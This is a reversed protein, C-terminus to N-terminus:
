GCTRVANVIPITQDADVPDDKSTGFEYFNNYTTIDDWPNPEENTSFKSKKIGKLKAYKNEDSFALLPNSKIASLGATALSFKIFKRRNIYDKEKTIESSKIDASNKILMM